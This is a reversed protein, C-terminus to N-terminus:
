WHDASSRYAIPRVPSITWEVAWVCHLRAASAAIVVMDDFYSRRDDNGEFRPRPLLLCALFVFVCVCSRFTERHFLVSLKCCCCFIRAGCCYRDSLSRPTLSSHTTCWGTDSSVFFIGSVYGDM